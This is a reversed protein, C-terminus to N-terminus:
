LLPPFLSQGHHVIELSEPAYWCHYLFVNSASPLFGCVFYESGRVDVVFGLNGIFDMRYNFNERDCDKGCCPGIIRVPTGINLTEIRKEDQTM